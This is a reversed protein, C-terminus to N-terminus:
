STVSRCGSISSGSSQHVSCSGCTRSASWCSRCCSRRTPRSTRCFGSRSSCRSAAPEAGRRHHAAGRGAVARLASLFDNLTEILEQKTVAALRGRKIEDRSVVGFDQLIIGCCIKKPLFPNLVLATFTRAISSSSCPAACRRRAPESTAPSSSSDKAAASPTSCCSSRM